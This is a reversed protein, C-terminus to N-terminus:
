GSICEVPIHSELTLAGGFDILFDLNPHLGLGLTAYGLLTCKRTFVHVQPLCAPTPVSLGALPPKFRSYRWEQSKPNYM